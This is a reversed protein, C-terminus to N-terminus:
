ERQELTLSYANLYADLMAPLGFRSVARNRAAVSMVNRSTSSRAIERVAEATAHVDGLPLLRGTVGDQVIEELCTDSFAIVPLGCAMAEAAVLGFGESRSPFLLVDVDQMASVIAADGQLRGIDHMNKPMDPKDQTATAGGTYRLEFDEGLERMIPALLDVGKRTMWSGVYLLRFCEDTQRPHNEPKFKETDIGNYIVQMPRDLLTEKATDAVFQSVAVVTRSNELVNRENPAIWYRHYATRILGKYSQAQPHHVAHHITAIVPLSNPVFRPHLWSNIHVISAWKPTKPVSVTWPAYEARLPLWTIEARIGKKKLEAVLRETFVDTGTGTRVTPFWVAIADRM